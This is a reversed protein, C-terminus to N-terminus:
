NNTAKENAKLANWGPLYWPGLTRILRLPGPRGWGMGRGMASSGWKPWGQAQVGQKTCPCQMLQPGRLTTAPCLRAARGMGCDWCPWAPVTPGPAARWARAVLQSLSPHDCADLNASLAWFGEGLSCHFANESVEDYSRMKESNGTRKHHLWWCVTVPSIVGM